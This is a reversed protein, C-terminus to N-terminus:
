PPGGRGPVAAPPGYPTPLDADGHERWRRSMSRLTMWTAAGLGSYLLVTAAFTLWIGGNPTVADQVRLIGNVIWPQRGVETTTWGAELAAVALPGAVLALRLFWTSELPDIGRRRRWWFWLALLLLVTAIGVMSQFALHVVNVPPREDAPIGDLGPVSRDFWGRALFSGIGPIRIGGVVKGNVLVGGVILPAHTETTTALEMAALKAPQDIALRMGAVHGVLPQIAAAITAMAFAVTFGMRHLRDRRGRLIGAAYVAAVVFGVVFFTAVFMHVFQTWLARNFMAALPDVDVVDTGGDARTVLRFGSPANMWSNVALICFTGFLGSVMIPVLTRLHVKPPLRDWGYLYIGIFIAEVFFAIGEMAFPLGIVDGYASMLGPWLLGMEFSLVTGSVAGVAFLVAAVKSWRRALLLADADGRLGRRHLVFILAPFAVGFCSLVIHFGLSLAMQYRAALLQSTEALV